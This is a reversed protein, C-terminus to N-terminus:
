RVGAPYRTGRDAPSATHGDSCSLGPQDLARDAV